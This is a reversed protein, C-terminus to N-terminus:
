LFGSKLQNNLLELEIMKEYTTIFSSLGHSLRKKIEDIPIYNESAKNFLGSIELLLLLLLLLLSITFACDTKRILSVLGDAKSIIAKPFESNYQLFM